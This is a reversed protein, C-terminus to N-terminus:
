KNEEAVSLRTDNWLRLTNGSTDSRSHDGHGQFILMLEDAAGLNKFIDTLENVLVNKETTKVSTAVNSSYFRYSNELNSGYVASLPKLSAYNEENIDQMRVDYGPANGDTFFINSISDPNIQNTLEVIWETNLHISVESEAPTPGGGIIIVQQGGFVPHALLLAILAILKLRM